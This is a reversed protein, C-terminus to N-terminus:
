AARRAAKLHRCDHRRHLQGQRGFRGAPTTALAYPESAGTDRLLLTGDKHPEAEVLVRHTGLAWVVRTDCKGPTCPQVQVTYRNTDDFIM